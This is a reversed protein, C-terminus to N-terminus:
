LTGFGCQTEPGLAVTDAGAAAKSPSREEDKIHAPANTALLAGHLTPRRGVQLLEAVVDPMAPRKSPKHQWCSQILGAIGHKAEAPMPPRKQQLVLGKIQQPFTQAWPAQPVARKQIMM